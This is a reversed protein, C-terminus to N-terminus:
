HKCGCDDGHLEPTPALPPPPPPVVDNYQSRDGCNLNIVSADINANGLSHVGFEGASKFNIAADSRMSIGDTSNIELKGCNLAVSETANLELKAGSLSLVPGQPTMAIRLELAGEPSLIELQEGGSVLSIRLSRGSPLQMNSTSTPATTLNMDSM